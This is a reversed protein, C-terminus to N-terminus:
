GADKKKADLLANRKPHEVVNYETQKKMSKADVFMQAQISVSPPLIAVREQIQALYEADDTHYIKACSNLTLIATLIISTKFTEHTLKNLIGLCSLSLM